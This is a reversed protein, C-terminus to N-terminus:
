LLWIDSIVLYGYLATMGLVVAVILVFNLLDERSLGRASQARLSKMFQQHAALEAFGQETPKKMVREFSAEVHYSYELVKRAKLRGLLRYLQYQTAIVIAILWWMGILVYLASVVPVTHYTRFVYHQLLFFFYAVCGLWGWRVYLSGVAGLSLEAPMGLFYRVPVNYFRPLFFVTLVATPTIWAAVYAEFVVSAFLGLRAWTIPWFPDNACLYQLVLLPPLSLAAILLHLRNHQWSLRFRGHHESDRLGCTGGLIFACQRIFFRRFADEPMNVAPLLRVYTQELLRALFFPGYLGLCVMVYVVAFQVPRTSDGSLFQLALAVPYLVLAILMSGLLPRQRILRWPYHLETWHSLSLQRTKQLHFIAEAVESLRRRRAPELDYKIEQSKLADGSPASGLRDRVKRQFDRYSQNAPRTALAQDAFTAALPFAQVEFYVNALVFNAADNERNLETARRLPGVAMEVNQDTMLYSLGLLYYASASDPNLRVVDRLRDIATTLEGSDISSFAQKYYQEAKQLEDETPGVARYTKWKRLDAILDRASQYRDAPSRALCKLCVQELAQPVASDLQRPPVPDEKGVRRFVELPHSGFPRQGVLLEYLVVGMSWIDSAPTLSGGAGQEPSMYAPTGCGEGLHQALTEQRIALGFDAVYPRDNVDLLINQPKLDRHLVGKGHAFALAETVDLMLDVAYDLSVKEAALKEALNKGEIFQMVVYVAPDSSLAPSSSSSPCIEYIQVIGPHKLKAAVMAERRLLGSIPSDERPVKIAVQRDLAPDYALYVQAFGGEGLLKQLQFRGITQREEAQPRVEVDAPLQGAQATTHASSPTMPAHGGANRAQDAQLGSQWNGTAPGPAPRPARQGSPAERPQVLDNMGRLVGIRRDLEEALEPCDGCLAAAALDRGQLKQEQWSSLLSNLREESMPTGMM